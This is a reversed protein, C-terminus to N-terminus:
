EAEPKEKTLEGDLANVLRHRLRSEARSEERGGECANKPRFQPTLYSEKARIFRWTGCIIEKQNSLKEIGYFADFHAQGVSRGLCDKATELRPADPEDALASFYCLGCGRPLMEGREEREIVLLFQGSGAISFLSM